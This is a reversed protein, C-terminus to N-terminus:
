SFKRQFSNLEGKSRDSSDSPLFNRASSHAAGIKLTREISWLLIRKGVLVKISASYM